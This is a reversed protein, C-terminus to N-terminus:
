AAVREGARSTAATLARTTLVAAARKRYLASAHVDDFPEVEDGVREGVRRFLAGDPAEGGTVEDLWAPVYPVGGVGALAVRAHDICGRDDLHLVAAAAALAFAGHTRAVELFASGSGPPPPELEIAVLLEGPEIATTLPGLFFDAAPVTRDGDPGRVLMRGDLASVAAPLEASPDAHALSGGVTGRTRIALHAIHDAAETLLHLRDRVLPESELRRQRVMSGFRVRDEATTEIADLGEVRNLDVLARPQALRMNLVPVLSQGGALVSTEEPAERLLELAEAVSRPASYDFPPPKV